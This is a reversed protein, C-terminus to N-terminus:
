WLYEHCHGYRFIGYLYMLNSMETRRRGHNERQSALQSVACISVCSSCMSFSESSVFFFLIFYVFRCVNFTYKCKIHKINHMSPLSLSCWHTASRLICLIITYISIIFSRVVSSLLHVFHLYSLFLVFIFLYVFNHKHSHIIFVLCVVVLMLLRKFNSM